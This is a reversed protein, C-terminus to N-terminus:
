EGGTKEVLKCERRYIWGGTSYTLMEDYFKTDEYACRRQKRPTPKQYKRAPARIRNTILTELWPEYEYHTEKHCNSCLTKLNSQENTGGCSLPIIHHCDLVLRTIIHYRKAISDLQPQTMGCKECKYNSRTFCMYRIFQWTHTPRNSSATEEDM